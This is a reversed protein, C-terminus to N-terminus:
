TQINQSRCRGVGAILRCNQLGGKGMSVPGGEPHLHGRAPSTHPEVQPEQQPGQAAKSPGELKAPCSWELKLHSPSIEKVLIHM